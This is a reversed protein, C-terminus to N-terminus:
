SPASGYGTPTEEPLPVGRIEEPPDEQSLADEFRGIPIAPLTIIELGAAVGMEMSFRAAADNDPANIVAVFDYQGLTAYMGFVSVDPVDINRQAVMLTDPVALLRRRGETTLNMLALYTAM